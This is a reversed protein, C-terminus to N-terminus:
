LLRAQWFSLANTPEYRPARPRSMQPRLRCASPLVLDEPILRLGRAGRWCGCIMTVSRMQSSLAFKEGALTALEREVAAAGQRIIAHDPTRGAGEGSAGFVVLNADRMPTLPHDKM